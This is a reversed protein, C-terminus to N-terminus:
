HEEKNLNIREIAAKVGRALTDPKGVAWWHLFFLRPEEETMHNHLAEVEIGNEVLTHFV